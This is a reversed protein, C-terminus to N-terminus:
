AAKSGDLRQEHRQGDGCHSLRRRAVVTGREAMTDVQTALVREPDQVGTEFFRDSMCASGHEAPATPHPPTRGPTIHHSTVHHKDLNQM